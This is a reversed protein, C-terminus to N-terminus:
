EKRAVNRGAISFYFVFNGRFCLLLLSRLTNITHVCKSRLEVNSYIDPRSRKFYEQLTYTEIQKDSSSGSSRSPAGNADSSRQLSAKPKEKKVFKDGFTIEYAMAKPRVQQQKDQTLKGVRVTSQSRSKAAIPSAPKQKLQIPQMRKLTDTTQVGASARTDYQHTTTNTNSSSDGNLALSISKSSLFEASQSASSYVIVGSARRHSIKNPETYGDSSCPKTYIMQDSKAKSSNSGYLHNQAKAYNRKFKAHCAKAYSEISESSSPTELKTRNKAIQQMNLHSNYDPFERYDVSHGTSSPHMSESPSSSTSELTTKHIWRSRKDASSDRSSATASAYTRHSYQSEVSQAKKGDNTRSREQGNESSDMKSMIQQLNKLHDIEREIWKIHSQKEGHLFVKVGETRDEAKPESVEIKKEESSRESKRRKELEIESRTLPQLWEKLNELDGKKIKNEELKGGSNEKSSDCSSLAKIGSISRMEISESTSSASRKTLRKLDEPDDEFNANNILLKSIETLDKSKMLRRIIKRTLAKKDSKPLRKSDILLTM